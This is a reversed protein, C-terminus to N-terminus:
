RSKSFSVLRAADLSCVDRLADSEALALTVSTSAGNLFCRGNHIHIHLGQIYDKKM